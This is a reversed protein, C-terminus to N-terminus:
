AALSSESTQSPAASSQSFPSIVSSMLDSVTLAAGSTVRRAPLSSVSLREEARASLLPAPDALLSRGLARRVDGRTLGIDELQADSLDYLRAAQRRNKFVRLQRRAGSVLLTFPNTMARYFM